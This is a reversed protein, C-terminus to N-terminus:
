GTILIVQTVDFDALQEETMWDFEKEPMKQSMAWGYLNNADLYMLYNNPKSPDHTDVYPNNAEAHKKTIMSVGGRIGSEVMLYMDPDDLLQLEVKTYKLMSDWSMGPATYYHAPDLKYTEIATKRFREFVDALLLVDTRLYLDHYDGLTECKFHNWIQQSYAYDEESIAEENLLSYFDAATPLQTELLREPCDVYDYPFVGKRLLMDQEAQDTFHRCLHIFHQKGDQALNTVLKELSTGLFQFSDIFRLGGLSFSIYREMNNPICSIRTTKYKGLSQMLLHGDYGRLNHFVVPIVYEDGKASVKVPKYALNCENHAAGRFEGTLHNHDRVRDAGLPEECIHCNIASTFNTADAATIVMAKPKKLIETVKWSEKRLETFLTDVVDDGRYVVSPRTYQEDECVVKYSFGSPEHSQYDTTSSKDTSPHCTDIKKTYCEFDAYIVFPVPLQNRINKFKVTKEKDPFVIKQTKQQYCLTTHADLLDQRVFAHLCNFCFHQEHQYNTRHAMLRSFNKILCYHSKNEDKILLLNVPQEAFTKSRYLPYIKDVADYGFINISLNNNKEIKPIDGVPTPFSVGTMNITDEYQQYSTVRNAVRSDVPHQQALISWLICKDDENKINLVARKLEIFKPLKIYSSGSLPQFPVTNIVLRLVKDLTWGSGKTTFESSQKYIEQMFEPIQNDLEERLLTIRTQSTFATETEIVHQESDLKMYRAGIAIYWKISRHRDLDETLVSIIRHELEQMALLVDTDNKPHLTVTHATNDIAYEQTDAPPLISEDTPEDPPQQVSEDGVPPQEVSEDEVPPQEVSEDEVPPQEVSEDEMPQQGSVVTTQSEEDPEQTTSSHQDQKASSEDGCGYMNQKKEQTEALEEPKSSQEISEDFSLDMLNAQREEEQQALQCLLTEDFSDDFLKTQRQEEEEVARCLIDDDFSWDLSESQQKKGQSARLQPQNTRVDTSSQTTNSTSPELERLRNAIVPDDLQNTGTAYTLLQNFSSFITEIYTQWWNTETNEAMNQQFVYCIGHKGM